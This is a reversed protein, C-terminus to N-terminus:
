YKEKTVGHCILCLSSLNDLLIIEHGNLIAALATHIAIYGTGGTILIKM